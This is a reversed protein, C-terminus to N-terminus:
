RIHDMASEVIASLNRQVEESLPTPQHERVIMRTDDQAKQWLSPFDAMKWDDWAGRNVLKSGLLEERFHKVTHDESLFQEKRAVKRILDM